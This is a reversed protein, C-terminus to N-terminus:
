KARHVGRRFIYDRPPLARQPGEGRRAVPTILPHFELPVPSPLTLPALAMPGVPTVLCQAEARLASGLWASLTLVSVVAVRRM